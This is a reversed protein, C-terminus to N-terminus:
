RVHRRYSQAQHRVSIAVLSVHSRNADIFDLLADVSLLTEAAEVGDQAM